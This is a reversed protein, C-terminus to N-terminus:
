GHNSKAPDSEVAPTTTHTEPPEKHAEPEASTTTTQGGFGIGGPLLSRLFNINQDALRQMLKLPNANLVERMRRQYM